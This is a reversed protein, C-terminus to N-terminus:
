YACVAAVPVININHGVVESSTILNIEEIDSLFAVPRSWIGHLNSLSEAGITEFDNHSIKLKDICVAINGSKMIEM